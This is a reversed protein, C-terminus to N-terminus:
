LAGHFVFDHLAKGETIYTAAARLHYIFNECCYTKMYIFLTLKYIAVLMKSFSTAELIM